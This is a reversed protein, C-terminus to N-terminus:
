LTFFKYRTESKYAQGAPTISKRWQPHNLSNPYYQTELAVGSRPAYRVGGKGIEHTFNATYVQIGPCDTYVAMARGSAPDSLTACPNCFVEFNHDIGNQLKLPEFDQEMDRGLPKPSRFDMPTGAVPLLQGTPISQADAPTFVRAPMCFLQEMAKQPQHHGALNFYSHNTLNFVTDRDAAAWYRVALTNGGELAYEVRIVADGPFGQDGHPSRLTFSIRDAERSELQWLRDKYYDPGSHLNNEGENKGLCVREGNLPFSAGAIRNANRGVTAGFFTGSRIYDAPEDFGLVVDALQGDRGPVFLSVLTAGLDTIRAIMKGSAITYITVAEGGPLKGFEEGM